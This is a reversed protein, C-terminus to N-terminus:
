APPIARRVLATHDEIAGPLVRPHVIPGAPKEVVALADPNGAVSIAGPWILAPDRAERLFTWVHGTEDEDVLDCAIDATIM